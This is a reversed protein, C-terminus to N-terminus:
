TYCSKYCSKITNCFKQLLNYCPQLVISTKSCRTVFQFHQTDSQQTTFTTNQLLQLLFFSPKFFGSKWMFVAWNKLFESKEVAVGVVIFFPYRSFLLVLAMTVSQLLIYCM